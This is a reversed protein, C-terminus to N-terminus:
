FASSEAWVERVSEALLAGERLIALVDGEASVVTSSVGLETRGGDIILDIGERVGKVLEEATTPAAAGSLNASPCGVPVAASQLIRCALPHNPWRVGIRKGKKDRLILTLPGPWFRKMLRYERPTAEVGYREMDSLAGIHLTLQKEAPRGKLQYLRALAVPNELHVGIGYVTETPFAVLGGGKLLSGALRAAEEQDAESTVRFLEAMQMM